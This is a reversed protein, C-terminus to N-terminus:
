FLNLCMKMKSSFECCAIQLNCYTYNWTTVLLGRCLRLLTPCEALMSILGYELQDSVLPYFCHFIRFSRPRPRPRPRKRSTGVVTSSQFLNPTKSIHDYISSPLKCSSTAYPLEVTKWYFLVNFPIALYGELNVLCKEAVVNNRTM